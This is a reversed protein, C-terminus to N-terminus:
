QTQKSRNEVPPQYAKDELHRTTQETVSGIFDAQGTAPEASMSGTSYGSSIPRQESARAQSDQPLSYGLTKLEDRAAVYKGVGTALASVGWFFMWCIIFFSAIPPLGSWILLAMVFLGGPILVVGSIADRRGKYYDKILKMVREDVQSGAGPKGTLAETIVGLNTGCRTCYRVEAVNNSGCNPCFMYVGSLEHRLM